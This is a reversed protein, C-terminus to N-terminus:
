RKEHRALRTDCGEAVNDIGKRADCAMQDASLQGLREEYAEFFYELLKDQRDDKLYM